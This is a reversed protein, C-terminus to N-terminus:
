RRPQDHQQAFEALRFRRCRPVALQRPVASRVLIPAPYYGASRAGPGLRERRNGETM